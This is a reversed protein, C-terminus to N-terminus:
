MERNEDRDNPKFDVTCKAQHPSPQQQRFPTEVLVVAGLVTHLLRSILALSSLVKPLTKGGSGCGGNKLRGGLRCSVHEKDGIRKRRRLGKTSEM